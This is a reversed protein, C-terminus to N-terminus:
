ERDPVVVAHAREALPAHPRVTELEREQRVAGLLDEEALEHVLLEVDALHRQAREDGTQRLALEREDRDRDKGRAREAVRRRIHMGAGVDRPGLVRASLAPAAGLAREAGGVRTPPAAWDAVAPPRAL